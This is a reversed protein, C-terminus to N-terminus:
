ANEIYLHHGADSVTYVRGKIEGKEILKDATSREMWDHEGYLFCIPFDAKKLSEGLPEKSYLFTGLVYSISQESSKKRLGTQHIYITLANM